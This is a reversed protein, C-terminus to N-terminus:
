NKIIAFINDYKYIIKKVIIDCQLYIRICENKQSAIIYRTRKDTCIINDYDEYYYKNYNLFCLDSYSESPVMSIDNDSHLKIHKFMKTTFQSQALIVWNAGPIEASLVISWKWDYWWGKKSYWIHESYVAMSKLIHTVMYLWIQCYNKMSIHYVVLYVTGIYYKWYKM